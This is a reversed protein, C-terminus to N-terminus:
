KERRGVGGNLGRERQRRFGERFGVEGIRVGM